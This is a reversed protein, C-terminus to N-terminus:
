SRGTLREALTQTFWRAGEPTLHRPDAFTGAGLAKTAAPSYRNLDIWLVPYKKLLHAVGRQYDPHLPSHQFAQVYAPHNPWTVLAVPIGQHQCYALLARIKEFNVSTQADIYYKRAERVSDAIGQRTTMYPSQAKPYWGGSLMKDTVWAPPPTDAEDLSATVADDAPSEAMAPANAWVPLRQTVQRMKGGVKDLLSVPSFTNRYQRLSSFASTVLEQKVNDALLPNSLYSFLQNSEQEILTRYYLASLYYYRSDTEQISPSLELLVLQPKGYRRQYLQLTALMIDYRNNPLGLNFSKVGHGMRADFFAPIFGNNTQSTGLFLVNVSSPGYVNLLQLKAPLFNGYKFNFRQNLPSCTVLLSVLLNFVGFGVVGLLVPRWRQGPPPPAAPPQPM